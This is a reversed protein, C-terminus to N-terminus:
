GSTVGVGRRTLLDRRGRIAMVLVEVWLLHARVVALSDISTEAIQTSPTSRNVRNTLNRHESSRLTIDWVVDVVRIRVTHGLGNITDM